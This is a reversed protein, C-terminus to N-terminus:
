TEVSVDPYDADRAAIVSPKMPWSIAFAPDNWRVGRASEPVHRASMHYVLEADDTMTVYGHAIGEPVYVTHRNTASLEVGTWQRYSPSNSRLDVLVDYVTGSTCRVLKVEAHPSAQYHMGRLTGRRENYAIASQVFSSCLGRDAFERESFARAFFGREDRLLELELVYAGALPLERFLM